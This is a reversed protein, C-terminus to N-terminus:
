LVPALLVRFGVANSATEPNMDKRYAVRSRSAMEEWSGGKVTIRNGESRPKPDVLSGGPLRATYSGLTWEFVNGHVDYLGYGNAPFTRVSLTGYQLKGSSTKADSANLGGHFNGVSGEIKDGFAYATQTAGRAVYEWEPETPLRYEYGTPLRGAAREVETLRACFTRAQVHTVSDVPLNSGRFNSPNTGMIQRYERQTIETSGAWFGKTFEVRTQPGENPLRKPESLPSGWQFEGASVWVMQLGLYPVMWDKKLEAGPIAVPHIVWPLKQNAGLTVTRSMSFYNQMEVKLNVQQIAPLILGGDVLEAPQGDVTFKYDIGDPISVELVGPLPELTMQVPSVEKDKVFVRAPKSSYDPHYLNVEYAGEKLGRIVGDEFTHRQGAVELTVASELSAQQSAAAGAFTVDVDIGGTRLGLEGFDVIYKSGDDIEIWRRVPRFGENKAIVEYTEGVRVNDLLLPTKGVSERNLLIEAGAPQSEVYLYALVPELMAEVVVQNGREIVFDELIFDAHRPESIKLTYMGELTEKDVQYLGDANANGLGIVTSDKQILSLKANATTQIRLSGMNPLLEVSHALTEDKPLKLTFEKSVYGGSSVKFTYEGPQADLKLRGNKTKFSLSDELAFVTAVSPSIKLDLNMRKDDQAYLIADTVSTSDSTMISKFFYAMVGILLIGLVGLLSLRYVRTALDGRDVIGKPVPIRDIQKQVLKDTEGSKELETKQLGQLASRCSQYRNEVVRELAKLFFGDWTIPLTSVLATPMKLDAINPRMATLLWYGIVAAGYVDARGDEALGAKAEPSLTDFSDVRCGGKNAKPVLPDVSASVVSEFVEQGLASRIGIGLLCIGGDKRILVLNTDLCRHDFGQAHVYGLVGLLLALVRSVETSSLYDTGSDLRQMALHETLNQGDVSDFFICHRHEIVACDKIKLVSEHECSRLKQQLLQLRTLSNPDAMSKPHVIGIVVDALGHMHQMHYYNVMLSEALCRVVKFNGFVADPKLVSHDVVKGLGSLPNPPLDNGSDDIM